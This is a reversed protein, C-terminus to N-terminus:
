TNEGTKGVAFAEYMTVWRGCRMKELAREVLSRVNRDTVWLSAHWKKFGYRRLFWRLANRATRELEPVDFSVILLRGDAFPPAIRIHASTVADLGKATLVCRMHNGIKRMEVFRYSKLKWLLKSMARDRCEEELEAIYRSPWQRFAAKMWLRRPLGGMDAEAYALLMLFKRTMPLKRIGELIRDETSMPSKPHERNITPRGNKPSSANQLM